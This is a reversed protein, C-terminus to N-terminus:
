KQVPLSNCSAGSCTMLSQELQDAFEQGLRRAMKRAIQLVL